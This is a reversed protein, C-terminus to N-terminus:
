YSPSESSDCDIAVAPGTNIVCASTSTVAGTVKFPQKFENVYRAHFAENAANNINPQFENIFSRTEADACVLGNNFIQPLGSNYAASSMFLIRAFVGTSVLVLATGIVLTRFNFNM